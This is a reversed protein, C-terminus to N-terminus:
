IQFLYKEVRMSISLPQIYFELNFVGGAEERGRVPINSGNKGTEQCRPSCSGSLLMPSFLILFQQMLAETLSSKLCSEGRRCVEGGGKM